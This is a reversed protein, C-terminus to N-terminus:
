KTLGDIKFSAPIGTSAATAAVIQDAAKHVMAIPRKAFRGTAIAGPM